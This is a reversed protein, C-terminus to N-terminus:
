QMITGNPLIVQEGGSVDFFGAGCRRATQLAKEYADEATSWAFAIYIADTAVCYDSVFSDDEDFNDDDAAYPGNMAPFTKIMELFWQKLLPQTHKIENYNVDEVWETLKNYWVMFEKKTEPAKSPDFVMLDYSM